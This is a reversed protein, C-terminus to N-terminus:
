WWMWPLIEAWLHTADQVKKFLREEEDFDYFDRISTKKLYEGTCEIIYEIATLLTYTKGNYEFKHFSLDVIENAREKYMMCHSYLWEIFTNNLNWTERSDFGYLKQEKKWYPLRKDLDSCFNTGYDEQKIGLDDLYKNRQM